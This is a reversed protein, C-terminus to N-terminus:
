PVSGDGGPLFAQQRLVKVLGQEYPVRLVFMQRLKVDLEDRISGNKEVWNKTDRSLINEWNEFSKMLEIFMHLDSDEGHM